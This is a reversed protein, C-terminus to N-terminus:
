RCGITFGIAGKKMAPVHDIACLTSRGGFDMLRSACEMSLRHDEHSMNPLLVRLQGSAPRTMAYPMLAACTAEMFLVCDYGEIGEIIYIHTSM